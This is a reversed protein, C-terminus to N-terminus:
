KLGYRKGVEELADTWSRLMNKGKLIKLALENMGNPTANKKLFDEMDETCESRMLFSLAENMSTTYDLVNQLNSGKSMGWKVTESVLAYYPVMMGTVSALVEMDKETPVAIVTGVLSLLERIEADGGWLVVPGMCRSACPLPVARAISHAPEYWGRAETLNIGAAVHIVRNERRFKLAAAIKRLVDPLITPFVIDSKDILEQGSEVTAVRDRFSKEMEATKGPSRNYMFIKGRFSENGCLGKILAAAINGVGIFGIASDFCRGNKQMAAM